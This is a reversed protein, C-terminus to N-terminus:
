GRRRFEACIIATAVAVNLSESTPQDAPYSPIFLKQNVFTEVDKSIGKGENGMVIVGAPSLEKEYMNEGDLFTGYVHIDEQSIKGFFSEPAEYFVNVRGIAGMTSQITKPNYIDACNPSCIVQDIGFWDAMRIITGLNGPDQVEDLYLSLNNNLDKFSLSEEKQKFIALVSPPSKLGSVKKIEDKDCCVVENADSLRNQNQKMWDETACVFSAKLSTDLLDEVLKAGEAVFLKHQDRIKKRNLSAILKQKAKSLM